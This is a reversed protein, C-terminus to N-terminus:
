IQRRHQIQDSILLSVLISGIPGMALSDKGLQQSQAPLTENYYETNNEIVQGEEVPILPAILLGFREVPAGQRDVLFRELRVVGGGGGSEIVQRQEVPIL